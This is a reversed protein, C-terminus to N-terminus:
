EQRRALAERAADEDLQALLDPRSLLHAPYRALMQTPWTERYLGVGEDLAVALLVLRQHATLGEWLDVCRAAEAELVASLAREVTDVSAAKGEAVALAWTFHGLEQTDNPHGEALQVLRM